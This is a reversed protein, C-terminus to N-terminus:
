FSLNFGKNCSSKLLNIDEQTLSLNSLIQEGKIPYMISKKNGDAHDVGLSHGLYHLLKLSLTDKDRYSYIDVGDKVNKENFDETLGYKEKFTLKKKEKLKKQEEKKVSKIQDSLNKAQKKKKQIEKNLQSMQQKKSQLEQYKEKDFDEKQKLQKIKRNYRKTKRNYEDVMQNYQNTTNQYKKALDRKKQRIKKLEQNFESSANGTFKSKDEKYVLNISYDANPDYEFLDVNINSEWKEASSKALKILERNDVNFNSDARAISYKVTKCPSTYLSFIPDDAYVMYGYLAGGTLILISIIALIKKM